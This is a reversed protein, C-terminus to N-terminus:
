MAVVRHNSGIGSNDPAGNSTPRVTYSLPSLMFRTMSVAYVYDYQLPFERPPDKKHQSHCGCCSTCVIYLSRSCILLVCGKM